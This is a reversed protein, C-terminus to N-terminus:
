PRLITRQTRGVVKSAFHVRSIANLAIQPSWFALLIETPRRLDISGAAAQATTPVTSVHAQSQRGRVIAPHLAGVAPLAVTRPGLLEGPVHDGAHGVDDGRQVM